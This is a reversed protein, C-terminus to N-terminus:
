SLVCMYGVTLGGSDARVERETVVRKCPLAIRVDGVM